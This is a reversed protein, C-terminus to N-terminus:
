SGAETAVEPDATDADVLVVRVDDSAAVAAADSEAVEVSLSIRGTVSQPSSPLGVALGAVVRPPEGEANRPPPVVLHVRSRERLGIPLAGDPVQVAVVAAGPSVLPDPQVAEAVVLSGSVIRVKAYSGVVAGLADAGMTRVSPDTAVEVTRLDDAVLQVGAPVDRVVQLVATRQDLGTYLLLNGGVAVAVLVAGIAMRTRRRSSPRFGRGSGSGAAAPPLTVAANDRRRDDILAM